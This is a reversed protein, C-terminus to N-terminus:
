SAEAAAKDGASRADPAPRITTQWSATSFRSRGDAGQAYVGGGQFGAVNESIGCESFTVSHSGNGDIRVAGGSDISISGGSLTVGGIWIDGSASITLVREGSQAQHIITTDRDEGSVTVTDHTLALAGNLEYIGGPLVIRVADGPYHTNTEEVAARLSCLNSRGACVRDGPNVDPLDSTTNVMYQVPVACGAALLLVSLWLHRVLGISRAISKADCRKM